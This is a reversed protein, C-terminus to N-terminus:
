QCPSKSIISLSAFTKPLMTKFNGVFVTSPQALLNGAKKRENGIRLNQIAVVM